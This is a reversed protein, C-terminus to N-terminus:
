SNIIDKFRELSTKLDSSCEKIDGRQALFLKAVDDISVNKSIAKKIALSTVIKKEEQTLNAYIEKRIESTNEV